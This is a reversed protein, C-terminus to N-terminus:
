PTVGSRAGVARRAARDAGLAGLEVDGPAASIREGIGINSIFPSDDGRRAIVERVRDVLLDGIAAGVGGGVVIRDVDLLLVISQCAWALGNVVDDRVAVAAPTGAAAARWMDTADAELGRSGMREVIARGSIITELCGRQGCPCRTESGPVPVHGIEGALGRAGRVLEGAVVTGAAFGTGLSLYVLSSDGPGGLVAFAGLAAANVDNEVHVPIGVRERVRDALDVPGGIGLNLAMSVTGAAVIGPIGIGICGVPEDHSGVVDDIVEGLHDVLAAAGSPTASRVSRLVVGAPDFRVVRTNTGGIDIGISDGVRADGVPSRTATM